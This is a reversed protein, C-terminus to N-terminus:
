IKEEVNSEIYDQAQQVMEDEHMKQGKFIIFTSQSQRDMEIQFVKSCYIATRRGYYKEILYILLNLFSYAGGNTYIGHEDTILKDPQLNVDPFMARFND